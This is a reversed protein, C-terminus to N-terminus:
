PTCTYSAALTVPGGVSGPEWEGGAGIPDIVGTIALAVFDSFVDDIIPAVSTNVLSAVSPTGAEYLSELDSVEDVTMTEEEAGRM